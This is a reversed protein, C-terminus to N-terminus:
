APPRSTPPGSRISFHQNFTVYAAGAIATRGDQTPHQHATTEFGPKMSGTLDRWAMPAATTRSGSGLRPQADAYRRVGAAPACLRPAVLAVPSDILISM